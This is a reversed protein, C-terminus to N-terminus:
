KKGAANNVNAVHANAHAVAQAVTKGPAHQHIQPAPQLKSSPSQYPSQKGM